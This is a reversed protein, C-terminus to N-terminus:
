FGIQLKLQIGIPLQCATSLEDNPLCHGAEVQTLSRPAKIEGATSHVQGDGSLTKDCVQIYRQLLLTGNCGTQTHRSPRDLVRGAILLQQVAAQLGTQILEV